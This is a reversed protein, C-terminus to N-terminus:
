IHKWSKNLTIRSVQSETINYLNAIDKGLMSGKLGRIEIVQKETLKSLHNKEGKLSIKLGTKFAHKINQSRTCWILNEIKNNAKNGDSHNIEPYNNPNDIFAQAVLQHVKETKKSCKKTLCVNCYGNGNDGISLIREKVLRQSNYKRNVYRALSKVRGLNSIQYLGEYGKIDKWEEM